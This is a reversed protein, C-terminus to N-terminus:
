AAAAKAAGGVGGTAYNVGANVGMGLLKGFQEGPANQRGYAAGAMGTGMNMANNSMTGATNAGIGYLNNGLGISAMYKQMLDNMYQQRDNQMINGASNQINNVAASSGMLGMSSAADLGSEKANAFAQRAMPSMEYSKAWKAELEAPDNLADAQGTLRGYQDLGHQSYPQLNGQADRYYKEMQQGAAQYGKEPHMFSKIMDGGPIFDTWSM